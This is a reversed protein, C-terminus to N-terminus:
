ADMAVCLPVAFLDGTRGAFGIKRKAYEVAMLGGILGGVITKGGLLAQPDHWYRFTLLPDELWYLVKSGIVAGLAAAAIVTWRVERPVPDGNRRLWRFIAFGVSYALTEFVLHAPIALGGIHFYVPFKM